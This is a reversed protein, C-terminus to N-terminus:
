LIDKLDLLFKDILNNKNINLININSMLNITLMYAELYKHENLSTHIYKEYLVKSLIQIFLYIILDSDLKNRISLTNSITAKNINDVINNCLSFIKQLQSSNSNIINYPTNLIALDSDSYQKDNLAAIQQLEIISYPELKLVQCRNELTDLINFKNNCLIFIWAFEPPEEVFKLLTNQFREIRKNKGLNEIDIVYFIPYSLAYMDNLIDTSLEFDINKLEVEFKNCIYKLLTHKGMGKNGLIINTKPLLDLSDISNIKNLINNQGILMCM